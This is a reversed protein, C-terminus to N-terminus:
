FISCMLVCASSLLVNKYDKYHIAIFGLKSSLSVTSLVFGLALNLMFSTSKSSDYNMLYTVLLVRQENKRFFKQECLKLLRKPLLLRSANKSFSPLICSPRNTFSNKENVQLNADRLKM